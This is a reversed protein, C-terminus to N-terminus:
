SAIFTFTSVFPVSADLKTAIDLNGSARLRHFVHATLDTEIEAGPALTTDPAVDTWAAGDDSFQYRFTLTSAGDLNRIATRKTIGASGQVTFITGETPGVNILPESKTVFM